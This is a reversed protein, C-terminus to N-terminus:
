KKGLRYLAVASVFIIVIGFPSAICGVVTANMALGVGDAFENAKPTSDSRSITGFARFMGLLTALVAWLSELELLREFVIGAILIVPKM